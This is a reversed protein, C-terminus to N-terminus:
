ESGTLLILGDVSRRDGFKKLEQAVMMTHWSKTNSAQLM